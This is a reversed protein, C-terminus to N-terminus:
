TQGDISIGNRHCFSGYLNIRCTTNDGNGVVYQVVSVSRTPIFSRPNIKVDRLGVTPCIVRDSTDRQLVIRNLLKTAVTPKIKIAPIYRDSRRDRAIRDGVAVRSPHVDVVKLARANRTVRYCTAGIGPNIQM